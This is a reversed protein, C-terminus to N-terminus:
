VSLKSGKTDEVFYGVVPAIGAVHHPEPHGAAFQRQADLQDDAHMYEIAASARGQIVREYAVAYLTRKGWKALYIPRAFGCRIGHVTGTCRFEPTVKGDRDISHVQESIGNMGNCAPCCILAVVPKHKPLPIWSGPIGRYEVGKPTQKTAWELSRTFVYSEPSSLRTTASALNM